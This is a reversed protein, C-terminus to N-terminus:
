DATESVTQRKSRLRQVLRYALPHRKIRAKAQTVASHGLSAMAGLRSIPVVVDYLVTEVPCWSRKYLQDGVGFDFLAAESRCGEEIMHWFLLEGPSTEPVITEDISGFQCIIHDGKRTLGAIAPVLDEDGAKLRIARLMLPHDLGSPWGDLLGHFFQRVAAEAFADPLGQARFRAAKQRFFLDLLAHSEAHDAPTVYHYGGIEEMRRTQLRFKKRRRKANVQALTQEFSSLLPLQFSHNAHEHGALDSLAHRRGRWVRPM